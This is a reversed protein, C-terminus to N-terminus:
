DLDFLAWERTLRAPVEEGDAKREAIFADVAHRGQSLSSSL